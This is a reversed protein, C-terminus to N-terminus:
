LVTGAMESDEKNLTEYQVSPTKGERTQLMAM